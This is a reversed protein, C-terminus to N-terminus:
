YYKPAFNLCFESFFLSPTSGSSHTTAQGSPGVVTEGEPEAEEVEGFWNM